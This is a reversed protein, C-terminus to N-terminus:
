REEVFLLITREATYWLSPTKAVGEFIYEKHNYEVMGEVRANWSQPGKVLLGEGADHNTARVAAVLVGHFFDWDVLSVESILAHCM